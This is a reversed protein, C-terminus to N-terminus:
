FPNSKLLSINTYDSIINYDIIRNKMNYIFTLVNLFIKSKTKPVISM